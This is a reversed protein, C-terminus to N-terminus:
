NRKREWHKQSIENCLRRMERVSNQTLYFLRLGEARSRRLTRLSTLLPLCLNKLVLNGRSERSGSGTDLIPVPLSHLPSPAFALWLM